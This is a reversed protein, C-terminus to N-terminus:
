SPGIRSKHRLWDWELAAREEATLAHEGRAAVIYDMLSRVPVFWGGLGALMLSEFRPDLRGDHLFGSSFHTYMICAGGEAVLRDQDAEALIAIYADVPERGESGRVM